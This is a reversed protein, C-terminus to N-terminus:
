GLGRYTSESRQAVRAFVIVRDEDLVTYIIRYGGVRIRYAGPPAHQVPRCGAPRPDDALRKLAVLIRAQDQKPLRSLSKQIRRSAEIQYAM